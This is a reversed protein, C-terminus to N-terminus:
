GSEVLETLIAAGTDIARHRHSAQEQGGVSVEVSCGKM